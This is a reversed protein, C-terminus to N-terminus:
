SLLFVTHTRAGHAGIVLSQEIDATKSPGAIFVGYHGLNIRKYADHMNSVINKKDLVLILHQTIFPLCRNMMNTETLWLAGNQAVGIEAKLVAVDVSNLKGKETERDICITAAIINSAVKAVPSFRKQIFSTISSIDSVEIFQGGNHKVADIFNDISPVGDDFQHIVAIPAFAPKSRRINNLIKNAAM